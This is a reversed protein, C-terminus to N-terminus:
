ESCTMDLEEFEPSEEEVSDDGSPECNECLWQYGRRKPSKKQPPNLCSFHIYTFCADCQVLHRVSSTEKCKCCQEDLKELKMLKRSTDCDEHSLSSSGNATNPLSDMSNDTAITVMVKKKRGRKEGAFKKRLKRKKVFPHGANLTMSDADPIFKNPGKVHERLRRPADICSQNSHTGDSQTDEKETCDSCQWGGFRTKKPMRSLPPDLCYLHYYLKCSDCLALQHQDQTKRCTGCIKIVSSGKQTKPSKKEEPSELIKPITLSRKSLKSFVSWLDRAQSRFKSFDMKLSDCQRLLILFPVEEYTKRNIEETEKLQTNQLELEELRSQMSNMRNSRDLYYSVFEISFSPPIYWKRRVDIDHSAIYHTQPSLGLLESKRILKRVASPCTTLMRPTKQTPVWPPTKVINAMKWKERAKNLKKGIRESLQQGSLQEHNRLRQNSQLALWNRRKAKVAVKDGAHLKCHAYFPDVLETEDMTQAEYLLGHSQACTVHFYTKCLGADCCISIGTRSLREDECLSCPKSGWRDYPVEFLTVGTLRTTDAFAVGPIYLACVLHVWRGVETHKFIGGSNPCLECVPMSVNAKCSDCFWPETSSSSANSHISENDNEQESTIGYCCEHVTIGCSDCEVIENNEHTVDGLCVSCVLLKPAKSPLKFDNITMGSKQLEEAVPTWDKTEVISVSETDDQSDM